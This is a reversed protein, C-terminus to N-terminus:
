AEGCFGGCNVPVGWRCGGLALWSGRGIRGWVGRYFFGVRLGEEVPVPLQAGEVVAVRGDVGTGVDGEIVVVLVDEGPDAFGDGDRRDGGGDDDDAIEGRLGDLERELCVYLTEAESAAEEARDLAGVVHDAGHM